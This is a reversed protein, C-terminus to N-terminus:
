VDVATPIDMKWRGQRLGNSDMQNIQASIVFPFVMLIVLIFNKM